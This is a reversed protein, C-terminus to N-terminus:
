ELFHCIYNRGSISMYRISLEGEGEGRTGTRAVLKCDKKSFQLLAHLQIDTVFVDTETVCIGYPSKLIEQGFRKLFKGTLSVVQIRCNSSDTIYILQNPEDLALGKAECLEENTKGRKGVALVSRKKLSYDLKLEKLEGFEVIQTQLQSLQSCSFFPQPLTTPTELDNIRQKYINTTQQQLDQNENVKFSLLGIQQTLEELAAKRTSEKEIYNEKKDQLERLLADRRMRLQGVLLEFTNMIDTAVSDFQILENISVKISMNTAM